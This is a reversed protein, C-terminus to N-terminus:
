CREFDQIALILPAIHKLLNKKQTERIDYETRPLKSPAPFDIGFYSQVIPWKSWIEEYHLHLIPMNSIFNIKTWRQFQSIFPELTLNSFDDEYEFANSYNSAKKLNFALIKRFHQSVIAEFVNGYLYIAKAGNIEVPHSFHIGREKYNEGRVIFGNNEFHDLLMNSGYGGFSCVWIKINEGELGKKLEIDSFPSSFM